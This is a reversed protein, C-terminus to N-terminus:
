SISYCCDIGSAKFHPKLTELKDTANVVHTIRARRLLEVDTVAKYNGHFLAGM